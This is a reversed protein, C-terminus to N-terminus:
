YTIKSPVLTPGELRECAQKSRYLNQLAYIRLQFSVRVENSIAHPVIGGKMLLEELQPCVRMIM